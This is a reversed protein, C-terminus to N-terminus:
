CFVSKGGDSKVTLSVDILSEQHNLGVANETMMMMMMSMSVDAM